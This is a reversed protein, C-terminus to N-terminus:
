SLHLTPENRLKIIEIDHSVRDKENPMTMYDGYLQHEIKDADFPCNVNINEFPLQIPAGWWEKKMAENERQKGLMNGAWESNDFDYLHLIREMKALVSDVNIFAGIPLFHLLKIAVKEYWPRGVKHTDVQTRLNPIQVLYRCRMIRRVHFWRKISNSPLGDIPFVDIWIKCKRPTENMHVIIESENDVFQSFNFQWNKDNHHDTLTYGNPFKSQLSVFKDYDVRPMGVDIDDDWPIFGKHRLVGILSGGIMYWRLHNELCFNMFVKLIEIQTLQVKRVNSVTEM